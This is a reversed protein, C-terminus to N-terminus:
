LGINKITKFDIPKMMNLQNKQHFSHSNIKQDPLSSKIEGGLRRKRFDILVLDISPITSENEIHMNENCKQNSYLIWKM